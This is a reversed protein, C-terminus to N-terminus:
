PCSPCQIPLIDCAQLCITQDSNTEWDWDHNCCLRCRAACEQLGCEDWSPVVEGCTDTWGAYALVAIGAVGFVAALIRTAKMSTEKCSM